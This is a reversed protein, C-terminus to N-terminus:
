CEELLVAQIIELCHDFTPMYELVDILAFDERLETDRHAL